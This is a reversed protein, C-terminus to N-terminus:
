LNTFALLFGLLSGLVVSRVTLQPTGEGRFAREYWTKEDFTAVEAPSLALPKSAAIEDPTRAPKQFLPM